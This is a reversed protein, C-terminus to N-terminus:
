EIRVGGSAAPVARIPEHTGDELANRRADNLEAARDVVDSPTLTSQDMIEHQWSNANLRQRIRQLARDRQESRKQEPDRGGGDLSAARGAQSAEWLEGAAWEVVDAVTRKTEAVDAPAPEGGDDADDDFAQLAHHDGGDAAAVASTTAADVPEAAGDADLTRPDMETRVDDGTYGQRALETILEAVDARTKNEPILDDAKPPLDTPELAPASYRDDFIDVLRKYRDVVGAVLAVLDKREELGDEVGALDAAYPNEHRDYWNSLDSAQIAYALERDVAAQLEGPTVIPDGPLEQAQQEKLRAQERYHDALHALQTPPVEAKLDDMLLGRVTNPFRAIKRREENDAVLAQEQQRLDGARELSDGHAELAFQVGMRLVDSRCLGAAEALADVDDVVDGDVRATLVADGDDHNANDDSM